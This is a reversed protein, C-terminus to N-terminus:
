TREALIISRQRGPENLAKSVRARREEIDARRTVGPEGQAEWHRSFGLPLERPSGAAEVVFVDSITHESISKKEEVAPSLNL